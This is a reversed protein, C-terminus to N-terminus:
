MIGLLNIIIGSIVGIGYVISLIKINEKIDKNIKFLVMIAVGSGTLLGAMASGLTISGSLYVTTIAVSSACNPILGVLSSVFPSFFSDKLFIKSVTDEGLYEFGLNLIFSVIFIFIFISLTHKISSKIISHNCNCHEKECLNEIEYNNVKKKRFIMDIIFGCLMGIIIKIFLVKPILDARGEGVLIPLMEDSTSLYISILTGLSIIRTAYLNTATVSFGCQPVAGFLSGIIPGFNGAKMILKKNKLKHEILEIIIFAIFLFPLLKLVDIVTDLIVDKM